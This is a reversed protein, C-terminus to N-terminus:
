TVVNAPDAPMPEHEITEGQPEDPVTQAPLMAEPLGHLLWMERAKDPGYRALITEALQGIDYHVTEHVSRDAYGNLASMTKVYRSWDVPSERLIKLDKDRPAIRLAKVLPESFVDRNREAVRKALANRVAKAPINPRKAM